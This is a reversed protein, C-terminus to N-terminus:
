KGVLIYVAELLAPFCLSMALIQGFSWNDLDWNDKEDELLKTANAFAPYLIQSPTPPQLISRVHRRLWYIRWLLYLPLIQIAIYILDYITLFFLRLLRRFRHTIKAKPTQAEADPNVVTFMPENERPRCFFRLGSAGFLRRFAPRINRGLYNIRAGHLRTFTPWNGKGQIIMTGILGMFCVAWASKLVIKETRGPIIDLLFMLVCPFGERDIESDEYVKSLTNTRHSTVIGAILMFITVLLLRFGRCKIDRWLYPTSILTLTPCASIVSTYLLLYLTFFAGGLGKGFVDSFIKSGAGRKYSEVRM